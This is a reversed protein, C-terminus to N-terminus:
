ALRVAVVKDGEVDVEITGMSKVPVTDQIRLVSGKASRRVFMTHTRMIPANELRYNRRITAYGPKDGTWRDFAVLKGSTARVIVEQGDQAVLTAPGELGVSGVIRLARKLDLM